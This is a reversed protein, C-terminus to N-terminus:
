PSLQKVSLDGSGVALWRGDPSLASSPGFFEDLNATGFLRAQGGSVVFMEYQRVCQGFFGTQRLCEGGLLV